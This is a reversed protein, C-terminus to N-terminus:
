QSFIIIRCLHTKQILSDVVSFRFCVLGTFSSSQPCLSIRYNQTWSIFGCYHIGWNRNQAKGPVWVFALISTVPQQKWTNLWASMLIIRPSGWALKRAHLHSHSTVQPWRKTHYRWFEEATLHVRRYFLKVRNPVAALCINLIIGPVSNTHWWQWCPCYLLLSVSWHSQM